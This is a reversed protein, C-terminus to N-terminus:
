IKDKPLSLKYGFGLVNKIIKPNSKKRLSLVLTSLANDSIEKYEWIHLELEQQGVVLGNGEILKELLLKENKSLKIFEKEHFLNKSELDYSFNYGIDVIGKKDNLAIEINVKLDEYKIPKSLYLKPKTSILDREIQSGKCETLYIVPIKNLVEDSSAIDIGDYNDDGLDIDLLLLDPEEEKISKMAKDYNTTIKINTYNMKKVQIKLTQAILGDDEVILIKANNIMKEGYLM